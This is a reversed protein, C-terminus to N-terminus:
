PIQLSEIVMKAWEQVKANDQIVFEQGRAATQFYDEKWSKQSHYSINADFFIERKLQWKSRTLGPKSLRGLEGAKLMGAGPLSSNWSLKETGVYITNNDEKDQPEEHFICHPHSHLWQPVTALDEKKRVKYIADIEMYGFIAHFGNKETPIYSMKGNLIQAYEFWGFFLFLDGKTVGNSNELHTQAAAIQGFAPRWGNMRHLCGYNLDPDLHGTKPQTTWAKGYKLQIGLDTIAKEYSIGNASMMESYHIKSKEAPIPLPIPIDEIIPSPKNAVGSDLGKRSLIVKM